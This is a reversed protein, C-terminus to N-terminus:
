AGYIENIREIVEKLNKYKLVIKIIQIKKESLENNKNMLDKIDSILSDDSLVLYENYLHDMLIPKTLGRTSEIYKFLDYTKKDIKDIEKNEYLELYKYLTPRSVNLYLALENLRIKISKLKERVNM